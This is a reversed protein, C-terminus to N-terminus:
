VKFGNKYLIKKAEEEDIGDTMKKDLLARANAAFDIEGDKVLSEMVERIESSSYGKAVLAAVIRSPGRLKRNAEVTILRELQDREDIYGLEVMETCVQDVIDRDFGARSLKLALNKRNNDSYALLSLAKKKARILRDAYRIASMQSLDLEDGVSPLGIEDFLSINVTYNASEGEEVIGLLLLHQSGAERIFKLIAM